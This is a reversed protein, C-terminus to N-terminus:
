SPISDVLIYTLHGDCAGSAVLEVDDGAVTSWFHGHPHFDADHSQGGAGAGLQGTLAASPSTAHQFQATEGSPLHLLYSLCVFYSGAPVTITLTAASLDVSAQQIDYMEGLYSHKGNTNVFSM